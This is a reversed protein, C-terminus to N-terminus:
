AAYSSSRRSRPRFLSLADIFQDRAEILISEIDTQSVHTINWIEPSVSALVVDDQVGSEAIDTIINALYLIASELKFEDAQQPNHHYLAAMQHSEPLCWAKMLAAGVQAHDLGIVQQEAFQLECGNLSMLELAQRSEVPMKYALILRGVDHMLGAVFLRESHLVRCQTAIIRSIIGCYVGHRWFGDLDILDNSIKEFIGAVSAALVLDRLERNGVITIARSVTEIKAPFQYFASNVIRLLRLTLGADKSIVKGIDSASFDQSDVMESIRICVDPLSVLGLVGKVLDGPTIKKNESQERLEM